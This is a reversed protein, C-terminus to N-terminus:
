SKPHPSKGFAEREAAIRELELTFLAKDREEWEVERAMKEADKYEKKERAQAKAAAAQLRAREEASAKRFSKQVREWEGAAAKTKKQAEYFEALEKQFRAQFERIEGESIKMEEHIRKELEEDWRLVLDRLLGVKGELRAATTAYRKRWRNSGATGAAVRYGAIEELRSRLCRSHCNKSGIDGKLKQEFNTRGM